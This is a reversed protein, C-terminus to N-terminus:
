NCSFNGSFEEVSNDLVVIRTRQFNVNSKWCHELEPITLPITNKETIFIRVRKLMKRSSYMMRTATVDSGPTCLSLM